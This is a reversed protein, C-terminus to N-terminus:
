CRIHPRCGRHLLVSFTLTLSKSAHLHRNEPRSTHRSLVSTELRGDLLNAAPQGSATVVNRDVAAVGPLCQSGVGSHSQHIKRRDAMADSLGQTVRRQTGRMSGDLISRVDCQYHISAICWQQAWQTGGADRNSNM